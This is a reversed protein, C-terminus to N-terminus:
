EKNGWKMKFSTNLEMKREFEYLSFPEYLQFGDKTYKQIPKGFKSKELYSLTPFLLLYNEYKEM